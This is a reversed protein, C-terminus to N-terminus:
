HRFQRVGTMVMVIGAEDAAALAEEDRISGGPQIIAAVGAEAAKEVGDAFPFFGDSALVAGAPDHGRERALRIALEVAGVRSTQGSGVGVTARGRALVIANSAVARCVIWAFLLDAWVSPTPLVRTVVKFSRESGPTWPPNPWQLLFGGGVRRLEVADDAWPVPGSLLRLNKKAALIRRAADDFAPAWVVELFTEVLRAALPGDVPETLAVVGGFASVPDAALAREYAALASTAAAVGCPITHKVVAACSMASDLATLDRILHRVAEVDLYNNYSLEKGQLVEIAAIDDARPRRDRYLAAAQQPNEGYRLEHVRELALQWREPWSDEGRGLWEAIRADYGATRRFARAALRRRTGASIAGKRAALEEILQDYQDPDTVVVVDCWNKAAARILAVGGIDVLDARADDDDAGLEDADEFPYLDVVVLDIPRIGLPAITEMDDPRTRRALIAAHIAPHLTKVRGELLEPYGTVAEVEIVPVGAQGLAAATGGSAVIEIGRGALAGGLSALGTKSWVSILARQVRVDGPATLARRGV